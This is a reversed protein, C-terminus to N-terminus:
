RADVEASDSGVRTSASASVYISDPCPSACPSSVRLLLPDRDDMVDFVDVDPIDLKGGDGRRGCAERGLGV